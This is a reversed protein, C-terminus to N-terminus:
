KLFQNGTGLFDIGLDIQQNLYMNEFAPRRFCLLNCPSCSPLFSFFAVQYKDRTQQIFQNLSNQIQNCWWSLILLLMQCTSHVGRHCWRGLEPLLWAQLASSVTVCAQALNYLSLWCCCMILMILIIFIFYQKDRHQGSHRRFYSGLIFAKAEKSFTGPHAYM